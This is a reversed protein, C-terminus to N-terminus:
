SVSFINKYFIIKFFIFIFFRMLQLCHNWGMVHRRGVLRLAWSPPLLSPGPEAIAPGGSLEDVSLELPHSTLACADQCLPMGGELPDSRHARLSLTASAGWVPCRGAKPRLLSEELMPDVTTAPTLMKPGVWM